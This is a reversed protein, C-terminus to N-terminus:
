SQGHLTGDRRLYRRAPGDIETVLDHDTYHVRDRGLRTGLVLYRVPATGRNDLRHGVPVGAAWCAADGPCLITEADEVLVAEGSLILVMEDETEHWHRRGSASGPPLEEVFAGFQGLGGPDGILRYQYPGPGQGLIPHPTDADQHWVADAARQIRARPKEGDFDAGWVPPLNLLQPPLSGSRLVRGDAAVVEWTTAHNVLREGSDPYHCIDGAVRTGAILWLCPADSRNTLHHADPDGHPWCVADGARLIHAGGADHLTAEGQLMYLFEDEATHWHRQSSWAGPDLSDIYVGFQRLGGAASLDQRHLGNSGRAFGTARAAIM